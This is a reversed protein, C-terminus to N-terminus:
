EAAGIIDHRLNLASVHALSGNPVAIGRAAVSPAAADLRFGDGVAAPRPQFPLGSLLEAFRRARRGQVPAVGDALAADLRAAELIGPLHAVLADRSGFLELAVPWGAVGVIVGTQGPLAKVNEAAATAARDLHDAFSQSATAGLAAEYRAVGDWVRAQRQGGENRLRHKVSASVNRARRAHRDAGHWRGQEVCAVEIVASAAPALLLDYALTRTQMGGELLEGELLLVPAHGLNTVTLLPVQAGGPMEGVEVQASSGTRLGRVQKTDAWVPFVTVPGFHAPRGVHLEPINM